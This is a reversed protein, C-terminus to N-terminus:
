WNIQGGAAYLEALGSLTVETDSRERRLAAVVTASTTDLAAGAHGNSRANRDQTAEEVAERIWLGLVPHANMEVYVADGLRALQQMAARFRVPERVNWGWYNADVEESAVARGLVTSVL